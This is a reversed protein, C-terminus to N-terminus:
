VEGAVVKQLYAAEEACFDGIIRRMRPDRLHHASRTLTAQFGRAHKHEGGAGPEFAVLKRAIAEDISHYYCVEFHLFRREEGGWYRGYLRDGKRINIAGAVLNEGERAVVIELQGNKSWRDRILKFFAENLYRRGWAFKDVTSLYFRYAADMTRDDLADGSRTEVTIGQARVEKRERRIQTRKKSPLTALFDEFTAFGQNFWQFQLGYRELWGRKVFAQQEAERPFNLHASSLELQECLQKSGEAVAARVLEPDEGPAVLIRDGTAPTFPVALLLKPYYRLGLRREALGAWQWDFVFEGESNGKIYAPAAGILKEGRYVTLHRPLWGREQAACGTRELAELWAWEVFPSSDPALLGDWEPQAMDAIRELLRISLPVSM